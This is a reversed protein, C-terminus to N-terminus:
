DLYRFFIKRTHFSEMLHEQRKAATKKKMTENNDSFYSLGFEDYSKFFGYFDKIEGLKFDRQLKFYWLPYLTASRCSYIKQISVVWNFWETQYNVGKSKTSIKLLCYNLTGEFSSMDGDFCGPFNWFRIKTMLTWGYRLVSTGDATLNFKEDNLMSKFLKNMNANLRVWQPCVLFESGKSIFLRRFFYLVAFVFIEWWFKGFSKSHLWKKIYIKYLPSFIIWLACLDQM